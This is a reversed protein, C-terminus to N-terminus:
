NGKGSDLSAIRDLLHKPSFEDHYGYNVATKDKLWKADIEKPDDYVKMYREDYFPFDKIFSNNTLLKKNYCVAEYYRLSPGSQGEQVIEIITNTNLVSALVESYPILGRDASFYDIENRYPLESSKDTVSKMLHFETKIDLERLREYVSLIEDKRDRKFSGIFYADSYGARTNQSLEKEDQKSYYCYGVKHFNYKEADQDDFTLIADWKLSNYDHRIQRLTNSKMSNILLLYSKVNHKAFLKKLDAVSLSSLVMDVVILHYSFSDDIRIEPKEYWISKFPLRIHNAIVGSLHVKKIYRKLGKGVKKAKVPVLQVDENDKLDDFLGYSEHRDSYIIIYKDANNQKQM